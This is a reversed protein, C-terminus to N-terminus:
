EKIYFPTTTKNTKSPLSKKDDLPLKNYNPAKEPDTASLKDILYSEIQEGLTKEDNPDFYLVGFEAAFKDTPLDEYSYASHPAFYTDIKEQLFGDLIARSIPNNYGEQKYKYSRGAYFMFHSMDIWGGKITYIYRGKQLNFYGTETPVIKFRSFETNSLNYMYNAAQEGKYTGVKSPSNDLIDKFDAVTGIYAKNPERGDLDVMNVMNNECWAYPSTGPYKECLPDMTTTRMVAPYYWRAESDYEDLGHMEVFEKGNYRYPHEMAGFNENWPLGSPYYQMRQVCEKYNEWPYVYTERINGVHDKIYYYPYHEVPGLYDMYGESNFVYDLALPENDYAMYKMNGNMVHTLLDYESVNDTATLTTGVPVTAAVKRTRYTTKYRNGLADYEHVTQNGNAFQITDPLNLRNYRIAVIQRDLDYILNGNADYDMEIDANALDMYWKTDYAVPSWGENVVKTVQNGDYTYHLLNMIDQNDWRELRTINGSRDYTMGETYFSYILVNLTINNM